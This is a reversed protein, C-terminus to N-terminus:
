MWRLLPWVSRPTSPGAQHSAVVVVALILPLSSAASRPPAEQQGTRRNRAQRKSAEQTRSRIGAQLLQPRQGLRPRRGQRRPPQRDVLMGLCRFRLRDRHEGLRHGRIAQAKGSRRRRVSVPCRQYRIENRHHHHHSTRSVPRLLMPLVRRLLGAAQHRHRALAARQM